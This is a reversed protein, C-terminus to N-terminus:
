RSRVRRGHRPACSGRSSCPSPVTSSTTAGTGGRSSRGTPAGSPARGSAGRGRWASMGGPRPGRRTGAARRRSGLGLGRCTPEGLLAPVGVPDSWRLGDARLRVAAEAPWSGVAVLVASRERARAVLRRADGARVHRPVTAVVMTVGDLLAAVVTAWRSAPVARVVAFRDLAIGAEGAALGGLTGDPDIAAVWEGGRTAAAALELTISTVGSGLAGEVAVVTGRQLGAAPLSAGLAGPVVLM